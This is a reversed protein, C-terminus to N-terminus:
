FETTKPPLAVFGDLFRPCFTKLMKIDLSAETIDERLDDNSGGAAPVYDDEILPYADLSFFNIWHELENKWLAKNEEKLELNSLLFLSELLRTDLEKEM